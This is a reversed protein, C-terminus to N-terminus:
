ELGRGLQPRLMWLFAPGGIMATFIGIPIRGVRAVGLDILVSVLDAAVLLAAGVLAAGILLIAHRPGILSRALHPGILGVFAIPGAIVVAASTLVGAVLFLLLRLRGLHVGLSGAEAASLTGVDIAESQWLLILFGILTVVAIAILTVPGGQVELYGMMWRAIDSRLVGPGALYNFLMILAGNLTSLVVGTLLLGLPDIVGRRRAALFVITMTAGAGAMAGFQYGLASAGLWPLLLHALVGQLMMGAGAGTSLGLIYPEALPNRLLAQLAVGSVSLAVGVIMAAIVQEFRGRLVFGAVEGSPWGVGYSGVMLRAVALAALVLAMGILALTNRRTFGTM